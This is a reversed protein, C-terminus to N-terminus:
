YLTSSKAEEEGTSNTVHEWADTITLHAELFRFATHLLDPLLLSNEEGVISAACVEAGPEVDEYWCWMVSTRQPKLRAHKNIEQAPWSTSSLSVIFIFLNFAHNLSSPTRGGIDQLLRIINAGGVHVDTIITLFYCSSKFSNKFRISRNPKLPYFNCGSKNQSCCFDPLRVWLTGILCVLLQNKTETRMLEDSITHQEPVLTWM